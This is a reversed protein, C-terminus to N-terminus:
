KDGNKKTAMMYGTPSFDAYDHNKESMIVVAKALHEEKIGLEIAKAFLSRPTGEYAQGGKRTHVQYLGNKLDRIRFAPM